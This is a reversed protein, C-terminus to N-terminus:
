SVIHKIRFLGAAIFGVISFLALVGFLYEHGLAGPYTDLIIGMLPGFFIDPTYGIVSILGVASGTLLLPIKAESLTAFYLGRLGYIGVSTFGLSLIVIVSISVSGIGLFIVLSCLFILLFFVQIVKSHLFHDGLLGAGLAAFPRIWFSITGIHAAEVDNYHLVDAAYLSFDDTCKYGVYACLVMIANLWVSKNKAILQVGSWSLKHETKREVTKQPFFVLVLIGFSLTIVSFLLIVSSLANTLEEVTPNEVVTPLFSDM